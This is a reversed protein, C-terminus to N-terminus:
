LAVEPSILKLKKMFLDAPIDAYALSDKGDFVGEAMLAAVAAAPFATAKQMATWIKDQLIHLCSVWDDVVVKVLIMDGVCSAMPCANEMCKAFIEQDMKCDELMFTLYDLHGIWRLTQYRCNKVGREKMAQITSATGGKTNFSEFPKPYSAFKIEQVDGLAPRNVIEGNELVECDGVYENYLGQTSFTIAYKLKNLNSDLPLGGCYMFVNEVPKESKDYGIEALISVYGPALGLDTFCCAGETNESEFKFLNNIKNSVEPNGGLDCYRLGQSHCFNAVNFNVDYPASSIIIDAGLINTDIQLATPSKKMGLEELKRNALVLNYQDPDVFFTEYGLRQMAWAIPVGQMGLGVIVAKM